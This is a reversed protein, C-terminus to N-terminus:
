SEEALIAEINAIVRARGDSVMDRRRRRGSATATRFQL